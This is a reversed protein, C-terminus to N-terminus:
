RKMYKILGNLIRIQKYCDYLADHEKGEPLPLEPYIKQAVDTLVDRQIGMQDRVFQLISGIDYIRYHFDGVLSFEGDVKEYRSKQLYKDRVLFPIDFGAANWGLFHVPSIGHYKEFFGLLMKRVEVPDIYEAKNSREYVEVMHKKAFPNSPQDDAHQYFNFEGLPTWYGSKSLKVAVMAIQLIKDSKLDVGTTEIDIMFSPRTM